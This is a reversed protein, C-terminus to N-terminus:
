TRRIRAGAAAGGGGRGPPVAAGVRPQCDEEFADILHAQPDCGASVLFTDGCAADERALARRFTEQRAIDQLAASRCQSVQQTCRAIEEATAPRSGRFRGFFGSRPRAYGSLCEQRKRECEQLQQLYPQACQDFREHARVLAQQRGRRALEDEVDDCLEHFPKLRSQGKEEATPHRRIPVGLTNAYSRLRMSPNAGLFEGYEVSWPQRVNAHEQWFRCYTSAGKAEDFPPLQRAPLPWSCDQLTTWYDGNWYLLNQAAVDPGSTPTSTYSDCVDNHLSGPFPSPYISSALPEIIEPTAM